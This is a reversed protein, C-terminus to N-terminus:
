VFFVLNQLAEVAEESSEFDAIVADAVQLTLALDCGEPLGRVLCRVAVHPCRFTAIPAFDHTVMSEDTPHMIMRVHEELHFLGAVATDRRVRRQAYRTFLTEDEYDIYEDAVLCALTNHRTLHRLVEEAVDQLM